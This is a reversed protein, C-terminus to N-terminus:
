SQDGGGGGGRGRGRERASPKTEDGETLCLCNVLNEFCVFRFRNVDVFFLCSKRM